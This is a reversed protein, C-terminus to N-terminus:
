SVPPVDTRDVAIRCRRLEFQAALNAFELAAKLRDSIFFCRNRIKPDIWIDPGELSSLHVAM